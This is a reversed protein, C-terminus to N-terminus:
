QQGHGSEELLTINQKAEDIMEQPIDGEELYIELVKRAWFLAEQDMHLAGYTMALRIAPIYSYYSLDIWWMTFPPRGIGLSAYRYFQLAEEFRDLEFALDGLWVWHDTRTWDDSVCELLTQRAELMLELYKAPESEKFTKAQQALMKALVLRANYRMPGNNRKLSLFERLRDMAREPHHERWEIALYYLSQENQNHLWDDMLTIRNQARRQVARSVEREHVREHLTQVNPLGVDDRYGEPYSLINHTSRKYRIKPDNRCLWPFGWRQRNGAPGGTRLVSVVKVEQPLRDLSLLENVGSLLYEHGETMFIWDGTCRDMCQNRINGFHVGNTAKVKEEGKGEPSELFFVVDAYKEAIDWTKDVTRPDVGVVMEDAVGRFSALTLALDAEEDRVPLTVSMKFNKPFGCVGLLFAPARTDPQVPGMCEVRVFEFHKKLDELFSKATYKITHQEEEDPGLRDNPVSFFCYQSKAAHRFLRERAQESLHEIVETAIFVSTIPLLLDESELDVPWTPLGAERAQALAAASHDAVSVACGQEKLLSALIGVGGGVDLVSSGTPTLEVIRNYVDALAQGRWSSRGEESWLQDWKARSNAERANSQVSFAASM